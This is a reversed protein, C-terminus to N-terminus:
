MCIKWGDTGRALTMAVQMRGILENTSDLDARATDGTITVGTVTVDTIGTNARNERVKEMVPDTFKALMAPCMLQRYAVWNQSNAADQFASITAKIQDTDSLPAPPASSVPPPPPQSTSAAQAPSSEPTPHGASACGALLGAIGIVAFLQLARNTM